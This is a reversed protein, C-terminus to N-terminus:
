MSLQFHYILALIPQQSSYHWVPIIHPLPACIEPVPHNLETHHHAIYTYTPQRYSVQKMNIRAFLKKKINFCKTQRIEKLSTLIKFYAAVTVKWIMRFKNFVTKRKNLETSNHLQFHASSIISSIHTHRKTINKRYVKSRELKQVKKKCIYGLNLSFWQSRSHSATYNLHTWQILHYWVGSIKMSLLISATLKLIKLEDM